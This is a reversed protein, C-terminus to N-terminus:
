RGVVESYRNNECVNEQIEEGPVLEWVAHYPWPKLFADPDEFTVDVQLHGLDPRRYREITHLRETYPLNNYLWSKDNFGVTDIVLTDGDWRGVSHGTWTPNLDTPHPRGDLFVQRFHPAEEMLQILLRPTQIIKYVLPAVPIPDPLCYASPYDRLNNKRREELVARAWPLAVSEPAPPNLDTAAVWMGSFDPKGKATRPAPGRVKGAYKSHLTLYVDDGPSGQNHWSLRADLRFTHGARIVIPTKENYRAFKFGIRPVSLEYTGSPVPLTFVGTRLTPATHLTGTVTNRAQVTAGEVVDGNPDTVTGAITGQGSQAFASSTFLFLGVAIRVWKM